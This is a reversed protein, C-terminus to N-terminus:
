VIYINAHKHTHKQTHTYKDQIVSEQEGVEAVRGLGTFVTLVRLVYLGDAAGSLVHAVEFELRGLVEAHGFM